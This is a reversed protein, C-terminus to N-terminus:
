PQPPAPPAPPPLSGRAAQIGQRIATVIPRLEAIREASVQPVDIASILLRAGQFSLVANQSKLEKVPLRQAVALIDDVSLTPSVELRTLEDVALDFGPGWEPHATLAAVTGITAAERSVRAIREVDPKGTTTCGALCILTLGLVVSCHIKPKM